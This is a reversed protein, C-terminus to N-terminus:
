KPPLHFTRHNACLKWRMILGVWIVILSLFFLMYRLVMRNLGYLAMRWLWFEGFMLVHDFVVVM